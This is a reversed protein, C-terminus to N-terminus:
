SSNSKIMIGFQPHLIAYPLCMEWSPYKLQLNEVAQWTLVNRKNRFNERRHDLITKGNVNHGFNESTKPLHCVVQTLHSRAVILM